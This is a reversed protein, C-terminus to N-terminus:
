MGRKRQAELAAQKALKDVRENFEHGTHGRVWDFDLQHGGHQVMMEIEACLAKLEPNRRKYGKHLLGILLESDTCVAVASPQELARIAELLAKFEMRNNTTDPDAGTLIREQGDSVLIAAWGGVGPNGLCSGDTYTQVLSVPAPSAFLSFLDDPSHAM